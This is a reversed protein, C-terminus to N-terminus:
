PRDVAHFGARGGPAARGARASLDAHGSHSLVGAHLLGMAVDVVARRLAFHSCEAAEAVSAVPAQGPTTM